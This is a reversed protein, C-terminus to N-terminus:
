WHNIFKLVISSYIGDVMYKKEFICEISVSRITADLDELKQELRARESLHSETAIQLTLYVVM